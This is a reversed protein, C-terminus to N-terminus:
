VDYTLAKFDYVDPITSKGIAITSRSTNFEVEIRSYSRDEDVGADAVQSCM